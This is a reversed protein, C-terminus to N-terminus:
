KYVQKKLLDQVQYEPKLVGYIQSRLVIKQAWIFHPKMENMKNHYVSKEVGANTNSLIHSADLFEEHTVISNIQVPEIHSPHIVTKGILGNLRDLTMENYLGEQALATGFYEWVTGSLVFSADLLFTNFIDALCDRIAVLDYITHQVSRRVGLLGCFDTSGIRVNLVIDKYQQLLDRIMQLESMRTNKNLIIESELIPMAFLRYGLENQQVIQQLFEEGQQSSFKPLVYGTLLHQLAGLQKIIHSLHEPNRVRVFLLPLEELSLQGNTCAQRIKQLTFCLQTEGDKVQLDGLADELDMVITTCAEYKKSVIEEAVTVRTAPMYLAAGIGYSLLQKPSNKDFEIPLKYFWDSKENSLYHNFFRMTFGGKHYFFLYCNLMNGRRIRNM